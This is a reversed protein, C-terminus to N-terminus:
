YAQQQIVSTVSVTLYLRRMILELIVTPAIWLRTMLCQYPQLHLTLQSDMLIPMVHGATLQTRTTRVVQHQETVRTITPQATVPTASTRM